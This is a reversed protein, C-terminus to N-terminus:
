NQNQQNLFAAHISIYVSISYPRGREHKNSNYM